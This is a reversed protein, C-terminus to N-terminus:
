TRVDEFTVDLTKYYLYLGEVGKYTMHRIDWTGCDDHWGKEDGAKTPQITYADPLSVLRYAEEPDASIGINAGTTTGAIDLTAEDDLYVNDQAGSTKNNNIVVDNKVTANTSKCIYM